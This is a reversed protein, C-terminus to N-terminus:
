NAALLSAFSLIDNNNDVVDGAGGRGREVMRKKQRVFVVVVFL